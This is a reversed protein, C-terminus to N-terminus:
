VVAGTEQERREAWSCYSVESTGAGCVTQKRGRLGLGAAGLLLWKRRWRGRGREDLPCWEFCFSVM